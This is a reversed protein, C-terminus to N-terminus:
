RIIERMTDIVRQNQRKQMNHIANKIAQHLEMREGDDFIRHSTDVHIVATSGDNLTVVFSTSWAPKPISADAKAQREAVIYDYENELIELKNEATEAMGRIGLIASGVGIVLAVVIFIEWALKM